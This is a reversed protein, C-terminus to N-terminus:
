FGCLFTNFSLDKILHLCFPQGVVCRIHLALAKPIVRKVSQLPNVASKIQVRIMSLEIHTDGDDRTTFLKYIIM